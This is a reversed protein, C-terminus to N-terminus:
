RHSENSVSPGDGDEVQTDSSLKESLTIPEEAQVNEEVVDGATKTSTNKLNLLKQKYAQIKQMVATTPPCSIKSGSKMRPDDLMDFEIGDKAPGTDKASNRAMAIFHDLSVNSPKHYPIKVGTETILCWLRLRLVSQRLYQM